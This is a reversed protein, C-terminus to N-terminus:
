TIYKFGLNGDLGMQMKTFLDSLKMVDAPISYIRSNLRKMSLKAEPLENMFFSDCLEDSDKSDDKM